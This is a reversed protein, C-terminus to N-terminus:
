PLELQLSIADWVGSEGLVRDVEDFPHAVDRCVDRILNYGEGDWPLPSHSCM